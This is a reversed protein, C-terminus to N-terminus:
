MTIKGWSRVYFRFSFMFLFYLYFILKVVPNTNITLPALWTSCLNFTAYIKLFTYSKFWNYTAHKKLFTYSTSFVPQLEVHKMSFLTVRISFRNSNCTEQSIFITEESFHLECSFRDRQMNRSYLAAFILFPNPTARKKWFHIVRISFWNSNCM